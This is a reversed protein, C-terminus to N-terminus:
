TPNDTIPTARQFICFYYLIRTSQLYYDINECDQFVSANRLVIYVVSDLFFLIWLFKVNENTPYVM